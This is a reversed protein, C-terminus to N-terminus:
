NPSEAQRYVLMQGLDRQHLPAPTGTLVQESADAILELLTVLAESGLYLGVRTLWVQAMEQDNWLLSVYPTALSRRSSLDYRHLTRAILLLENPHFSLLARGWNLHLTGHECQSIFHRDDYTAIPLM